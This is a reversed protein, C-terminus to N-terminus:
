WYTALLLWGQSAGTLSVAHLKEQQHRVSDLKKALAKLTPDSPSVGATKAQKLKIIIKWNMFKM